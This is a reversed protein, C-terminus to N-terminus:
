IARALGPQWATSLMRISDYAAAPVASRSCATPTVRSPRLSLATSSSSVMAYPHTIQTSTPQSLIAPQELRQAEAIIEDMVNDYDFYPGPIVATITARNGDFTVFLEIGADINDGPRYPPTSPVAITLIGTVTGTYNPDTVTAIITYSGPVNPHTTSGNYTVSYSLGDPITKATV